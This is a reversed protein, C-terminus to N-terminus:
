PRYMQLISKRALSRFFDASTPCFPVIFMSTPSYSAQVNDSDSECKWEPSTTSPLHTLIEPIRRDVVAGFTLYVHRSFDSLDKILGTLKSSAIEHLSDAFQNEFIAVIEDPDLRPRTDQRLPTPSFYHELGEGVDDEDDIDIDLDIDSNSDSDNDDNDRTPLLM